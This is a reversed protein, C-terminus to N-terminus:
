KVPVTFPGNRARLTVSTPPHPDNVHVQIPVWRALQGCIPGGVKQQWAQFLRPPRPSVAMPTIGVKMCTNISLLRASVVFGGPVVKAMPNRASAPSPPSPQAFAISSSFLAFVGTLVALFKM